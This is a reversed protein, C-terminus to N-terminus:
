AAWTSNEGRELLQRVRSSVLRGLTVPVANGLQRFAASWAGQFEYEDPFSQLRAAERVTFYRVSGDPRRLMNEGGPVGHDGAKLTKAPEDLPSGTHGPYIRAGPNGVHNLIEPHDMGDKPEPLGALTDRVTRWRSVTDMSEPDLGRQSASHKPPNGVPRIGHERWYSGDIWQSARLAAKSHTPVLEQWRVDLDQRLAIIFVRERRQAVGFDAANLLQYTVRYSLGESTDQQRARVLRRKHDWWEEGKELEIEPLTLSELIYEFYPSFSKRLLGRVNEVIVAAPRIERVARFVQPFLNRRDTHGRHKGGLSFPQCPAGASLLAVKDAFPGFDFETVDVHHIPWDRMEPINAANARLTDCAAADWDLVALHEFGAQGVGLALGGAGAFLEVSTLKDPPSSTTGVRRAVAVGESWSPQGDGAECHLRM